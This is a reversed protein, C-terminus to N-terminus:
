YFREEREYSKRKTNTLLIFLRSNRIAKLFETIRQEYIADTSTRIYNNPYRFLDRINNVIRKKTSLELKNIKYPDKEM